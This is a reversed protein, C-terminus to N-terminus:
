IAVDMRALGPEGKAYFSGVAGGGIRRYYGKLGALVALEVPLVAVGLVWTGV